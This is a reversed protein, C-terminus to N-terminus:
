QSNLSCKEKHTGQRKLNSTLATEYRILGMRVADAFSAWLKRVPCSHSLDLESSLLSRGKDYRVGM